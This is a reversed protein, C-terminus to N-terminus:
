FEVPLEEYILGYTMVDLGDGGLEKPITTGLFGYPKLEKLINIMFDKSYPKDQGERAIAPELVEKSLKKVTQKLMIQEGTFDFNM